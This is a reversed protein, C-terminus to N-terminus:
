RINEINKKNVKIIHNCNELNKLRHSVTIITLDKAFEKLSSIIEKETNQDLASTAEDLILIKKKKYLARAIAIRQRQGGSLNIGREGIISDFGRESNKIFSLINAKLAADELDKKNVNKFPIGFAINQAITGEILYINQPVQAILSRWSILNYQYSETDDYEFTVHQFSM